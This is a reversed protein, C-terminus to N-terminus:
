QALVLACMPALRAQLAPDPLPIDCRLYDRLEKVQGLVKLIENPNAGNPLPAEVMLTRVIQPGKPSGAGEVLIANDKTLDLTRGLVNATRARTDGSIEFSFGGESFRDSWAGGGSSRGSSSSGSTGNAFWGPTGRWLILLEVNDTDSVSRTKYTVM